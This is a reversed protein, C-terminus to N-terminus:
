EHPIVEIKLVHALNILHLAKGMTFRFWGNGYLAASTIDTVGEDHFEYRAVTGDDFEFVVENM